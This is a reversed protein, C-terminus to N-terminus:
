DTSRDVENWGQDSFFLQEVLSNEELYPNGLHLRLGTAERKIARQDGAAMLIQSIESHGWAAALDSATWGFNNVARVDADAAILAEVVSLHGKMAAIQLATYGLRESADLAGGAHLGGDPDILMKLIYPGRSDVSEQSALVRREAHFNVYAGAAILAMSIELNFTPVASILPTWGQYDALNVAIGDAGLLM